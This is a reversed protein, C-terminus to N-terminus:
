LVPLGNEVLDYAVGISRQPALTVARM